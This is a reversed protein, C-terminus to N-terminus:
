LIHWMSKPITTVETVLEGRDGSHLPFTALPPSGTKYVGLAVEKKSIATPGVTNKSTDGSGRQPEVLILLVPSALERNLIEVKRSAFATLLTTFNLAEWTEESLEALSHPTLPDIKLDWPEGRRGSIAKPVAINKLAEWGRGLEAM